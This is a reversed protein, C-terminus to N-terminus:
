ESSAKNRASWARRGMRIMACLVGLPPITWCLWWPIGGNAKNNLQMVLNDVQSKLSESPSIEADNSNDLIADAYPLKATISLQSSIRAQAAEM